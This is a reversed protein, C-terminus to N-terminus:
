RLGFLRHILPVILFMIGIILATLASLLVAAASVDKAKKVLGNQAGHSAEDGLREVATNFLEAVLVFGMSLIVLSWAVISLGVYLGLAVSLCLMVVQIRFNRESVFATRIGSFAYGLSKIFKGM